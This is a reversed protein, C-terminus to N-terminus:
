RIGLYEGCQPCFNVGPTVRMQCKPCVLFVREKAEPNALSKSVDAGCSPCFKGNPLLKSGCKSCLAIFNGQYGAQYAPFAPYAPYLTPQPTMVQNLPVNPPPPPLPNQATPSPSNANQFQIRNYYLKRHFEEANHKERVNTAIFGFVPSRLYGSADQFDLVLMQQNGFLGSSGGILRSERIQGFGVELAFESSEFVVKNEPDSQLSLKGNTEKYFPAYGGMYKVSYKTTNQNATNNQSAV